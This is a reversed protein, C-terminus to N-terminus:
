MNRRMRLAIFQVVFLYKSLGAPLQSPRMVMVKNKGGIKRAGKASMAQWRYPRLHIMQIPETMIMAPARQFPRQVDMPCYM